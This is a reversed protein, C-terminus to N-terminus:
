QAQAATQQVEEGVGEGQNLPLLKDLSARDGTFAKYDPFAVMLWQKKLPCRVEEEAKRARGNWVLQGYVTGHAQFPHKKM